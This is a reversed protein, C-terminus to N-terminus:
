RILRVYGSTTTSPGVYSMDWVSTDSSGATYDVIWNGGPYNSGLNITDTSFAGNGSNLVGSWKNGNDDEYAISKSGVDTDFKTITVSTATAPVYGMRVQSTGTQDFNIEIHRMIALISIIGLQEAVMHFLCSMYNKVFLM